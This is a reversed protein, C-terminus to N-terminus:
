KKGLKHSLFWSYLEDNQYTATWSDHTAEPYLTIKVDKHGAAKMADVMEVSRNFPVVTDKKGHFVWFPTNLYAKVKAAEGGGCIPAVAAWMDPYKEAMYFSGFGGLSLGTLYVRSTDVRYKTEVEKLIRLLDEENQPWTISLPPAGKAPEPCQPAAVLFPFDERLLAEKLPGHKLVLDVNDGREGAGHLFFILPWKRGSDNYKKPVFMGYQRTKHTFSSEFSEKVYGTEVPKPKFGPFSSCASLGVVCLASAIFLQVSARAHRM